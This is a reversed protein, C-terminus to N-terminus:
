NTRLATQVSTLKNSIAQTLLQYRLQTDISSLTETELDVNNGDERTPDTSRSETPRAAGSGGAVASRLAGEFDVRAALYHPTNINAINDATARQRAALGDLASQLATSSISDFM